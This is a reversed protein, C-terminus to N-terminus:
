KIETNISNSICNAYDNAFSLVDKESITHGVGIIGTTLHGQLNNSIEHIIEKVSDHAKYVYDESGWVLRWKAHDSKSIMDLYNFNISNWEPPSREPTSSDVHKDIISGAVYIHTSDL